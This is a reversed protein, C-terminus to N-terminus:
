VAALADPCSTDLSLDDDAVLADKSNRASPLEPPTVDCVVFFVISRSTSDEAPFVVVSAGLAADCGSDGSNLQERPLSLSSFLSSTDVATVLPLFDASLIDESGSTESFFVASSAALVLERDSGTSTTLEPASFVSKFVFSTSLETALPM